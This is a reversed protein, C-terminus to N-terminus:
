SQRNSTLSALDRRLSSFDLLEAVHDALRMKGVMAVAVVTAVAALTEWVFVGIAAGVIGYLSILGAVIALSAAAGITLPLAAFHANNSALLWISLSQTLAFPVLSLFVVGCAVFEFPAAGGLLLRFLSRGGFTMVICALLVLILALQTNRVLLRSILAHRAEGILAALEVWIATTILTLVSKVGNALLRICQFVAVSSPGLGAGVVIMVGQNQMAQILPMAAFGLGPAVLPRLTPFHIDAARLHFDPSVTRSDFLLAMVVIVRSVTVVVVYEQPKANLLLAAVSSILCVCEGVSGIINLRANRRAAKYIGSLLINQQSIYLQLCTWTILWAASAGLERVGIPSLDVYEGILAGVAVFAAGCVLLLVTSSSYVQRAEHVRGAASLSAMRNVSAAGVGMDPSLMVYAPIATVLLWQGYMELGWVRIM